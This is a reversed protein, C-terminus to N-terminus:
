EDSQVETTSGRLIGGAQGNGGTPYTNSESVVEGQDKVDIGVSQQDEALAYRTSWDCERLIAEREEWARQLREPFGGVQQTSTNVAVGVSVGGGRVVGCAELFLAAARTDGAEARDAMASMVRAVRSRLTRLHEICRAEIASAVHERKATAYGSRPNRYGCAVAKQGISRGDRPDAVLEVLRAERLSLRKGDSEKV